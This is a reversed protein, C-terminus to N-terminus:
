IEFIRGRLKKKGENEKKEWNDLWYPPCLPSISSCNEMAM